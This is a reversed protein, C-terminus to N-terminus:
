LRTILPTHKALTANVDDATASFAFFTCAASLFRRLSSVISYSRATRALWFPLEATGAMTAGDLALASGSGRIGKRLDQSRLNRRTSRPASLSLRTRALRLDTHRQPM